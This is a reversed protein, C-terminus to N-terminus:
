RTVVFRGTVQEGAQTVRVMYLGPRLEGGAGLARQVLGAASPTFRDSAVLRGAVDMLEIRVPADSRLALRLQGGSTGVPNPTVGHFALRVGPVTFATEGHYTWQGSDFVGIRYEYTRGPQVDPDLYRLFGNGDPVLAALETWETDVTRRFLKLQADQVAGAYWALDLGNAGMESSVWAALTGTPNNPSVTAFRSRNGHVDVAILKYSLGTAGPTTDVFNTDTGSAILNGPGPVFLPNAGRHLRFEKFDAARSASWHLRVQNAQYVAHFPIPVPPALDDVSYASDVASDFFILPNATLASVFFATYPNSGALSDQTTAVVAGYGSLKAAPITAVAEWFAGDQAVVSRQRYTESQRLSSPVADLPLRRWVRYGTVGNRGPVDFESPRWRLAVRGGQDAPVDRVSLLKPASPEELVATGDSRYIQHYLQYSGSRLSRWVVMVNSAGIKHLAQPSEVAPAGIPLGPAFSQFGGRAFRLLSM